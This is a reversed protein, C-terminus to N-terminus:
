PTPAARIWKINIDLILVMLKFCGSIWGWNRIGLLIMM